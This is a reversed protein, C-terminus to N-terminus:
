RPWFSLFLLLGSSRALMSTRISTLPYFKSGSPVNIPVTVLRTAQGDNTDQNLSTSQRVMCGSPVNIPVTVLGIAQGDNTDQILNNEQYNM